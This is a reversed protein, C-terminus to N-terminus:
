RKAPFPTPRLCLCPATCTHSPTLSLYSLSPPTHLSPLLFSPPLLFDLPFSLTIPHLTAMKGGEHTAKEALCRGGGDPGEGKMRWSKRRRWTKAWFVKKLDADGSSQPELAM